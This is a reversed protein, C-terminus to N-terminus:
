RNCESRAVGRSSRQTDPVPDSWVVIDKKLADDDAVQPFGLAGDAEEKRVVQANIFAVDAVRRKVM